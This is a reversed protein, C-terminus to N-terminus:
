VKSGFVFIVIDFRTRLPPTSGFASFFDLCVFVGIDGVASVNWISITDELKVAETVEEEEEVLEEEEEEEDEDEM